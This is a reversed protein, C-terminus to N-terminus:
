QASSLAAQYVKLLLELHEEVSLIKIPGPTQLQFLIAPNAAIRDLVRALSEVDGPEVLFGNVGDMIAEPLAGTSTAVIPKGRLLAERAVFSYTEYAVSPIVLVDIQRYIDDKDAPQFPKRFKIRSDSGALRKLQRGYSPLIDARGYLNLRVNERKVQKFAKVLVDTGKWPLMSGVYAFNLLAPTPGAPRETAPPIELGLPLVEIVQASYGNSVLMEKVFQSPVLICHVSSAAAKFMAYRGALAAPTAQIDPLFHDSRSFLRRIQQRIPYPTVNRLSSITVTRMRQAWTGTTICRYCDGGQEPGLCRRQKWDKLTIRQCLLWFDHATFVTPIGRAAAILPLRASLTVLHNFHVLDPSLKTLLSDFFADVKVDAFTEEFAFIRKFNNVMRYVTIGEVLDEIVQHDPVSPRGEACLVVVRHGRQTLATALSATYVEVGGFATPPYGNAVLLVQM